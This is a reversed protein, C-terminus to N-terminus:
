NASPFRRSSPWLSEKPSRTNRCGGIQGLSLDLAGRGRRDLVPYSGAMEWPLRARLSFGDCMSAVGKRSKRKSTVGASEITTVMSSAFPECERANSGHPTCFNPVPMEQAVGEGKPTQGPYKHRVQAPPVELLPRSVAQRADQGVSLRECRPHARSLNV